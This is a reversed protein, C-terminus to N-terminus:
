LNVHAEFEEFSIMGFGHGSALFNGNTIGLEVLKNYLELAAPKVFPPLPVSTDFFAIPYTDTAFIINENPLYLILNDEAHSSGAHYLEIPSNNDAITLKGSEPVKNITFDSIQYDDFVTHTSNFVKSLYDEVLSSAVVEAGQAVYARIGDFHDTHHHITIIQEVPKNPYNTAVWDLVAESVEPYLNPEVVAVSNEQVIVLSNYRHNRLSFVNSSYETATISVARGDRPAGIGLWAQHFNSMKAGREYDAASHVPNAGAPFDFFTAAFTPNVQINIRKEEYVTHGDFTISINEALSYDSISNYNSYNVELVVDGFLYDYDITQIRNIQGSSQDVFIDFTGYDDSYNLTYHSAGNVEIDAGLSFRDEESAAKKLLFQPNTYLFFRRASGVRDSLMEPQQSADFVGDVGDIYGLNGQFIETFDVSGGLVYFSKQYSAMLNDNENDINVTTTIDSSLQVNGVMVDEGAVFRQATNDYSFTKLDNLSGSSHIAENALTLVDQLTIPNTANNDDDNCAYLLFFSGILAFFFINKFNINFM